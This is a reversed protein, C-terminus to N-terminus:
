RAGGENIRSPPRGQDSERSLIEEAAEATKRWTRAAVADDLEAAAKARARLVEVAAAGYDDVFEKAAERVTRNPEM